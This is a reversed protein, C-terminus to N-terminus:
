SCRSTLACPLVLELVISVHNLFVACRLWNCRLSCDVVAEGPADPFSRTACITSSM